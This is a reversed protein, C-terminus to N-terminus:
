MYVLRKYTTFPVKRNKAVAVIECALIEAADFSKIPLNTRIVGLETCALVCISMGKGKLHNCIGLFQEAIPGSTKGSKVTRIVEFLKEQIEFEPYV